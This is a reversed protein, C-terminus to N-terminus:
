EGGILTLPTYILIDNYGELAAVAKVGMITKHNVMHKFNWSVIVDCESIIAAAIHQCDDFSKQRLIGLDVFREAIEFAKDDIMVTTYMIEELYGLLTNRKAPECNRIETDTVDSIVVDFEGMKIRDWLKHTDSMREPVDQQDLYSIVSTDLYLRLKKM